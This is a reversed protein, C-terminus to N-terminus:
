TCYMRHALGRLRHTLEEGGDSAFATLGAQPLQGGFLAALSGASGGAGPPALSAALLGGRLCCGGPRAM